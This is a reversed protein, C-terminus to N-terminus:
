YDIREFYYNLDKEISLKPKGYFMTRYINIEFGAKGFEYKYNLKLTSGKLKYTGNGWTDSEFNGNEKLTIKDGQNPGDAVANPFNYIYTGSVMKTTYFNNYVISLVILSVFSTIILTKRTM